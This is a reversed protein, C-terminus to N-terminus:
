FLTLTLSHVEVLFRSKLDMKVTLDLILFLEEVLCIDLTDREVVLFFYVILGMILM